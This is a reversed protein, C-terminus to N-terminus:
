SPWADVQTIRITVEDAFDVVEKGSADDPLILEFFGSTTGDAEYEVDENRDPGGGLRGQYTVISTCKFEGKGESQSSEVDNFKVGDSKASIIAGETTGDSSPFKGSKGVLADDVKDAFLTQFKKHALLRDLVSNM